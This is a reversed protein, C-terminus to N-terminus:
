FNFVRRFYQNNYIYDLIAKSWSELLHYYNFKLEDYTVWKGELSDKEKISASGTTMYFVVGIHESTDSNLDRVYGIHKLDITKNRITLEERLERRASNVIPNYFLPQLDDTNVHGGFAICYKDQLREDGSIRKAIFIKKTKPNILFTYCVIQLYLPNGEMKDRDQVEVNAIM